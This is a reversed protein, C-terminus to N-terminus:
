NPRSDAAAAPYVPLTVHEGFAAKLGEIACNEDGGGAGGGVGVAGIMQGDVVIPIGGSNTFLNFYTTQRAIGNPNNKLQANAISTPQRTKLSTQAKLLATRINNYVQGDMREMHVFEGANDIVYLSMTGGKSAAWDRCVRAIKKASALSIQNGDFVNGAGKGGVVFESPLSSKPPTAAAFRPIPANGPTANQRPPLDPLLPAVSPGIVEELAKHACIEDSWVPVRPASGGVGVAGILQKNVIIPLGGSNAFSGLQMQQLERTPDEIVRNMLLKSAARNMLATRAKMDATIINLYGQGDMRDMYVHNGDNDLVMVSIQVGEATAAKECANAIREATALNITTFDQIQEAAKGSVVFQEPVSQAFAVGSLAMAGVLALRLIRLKM